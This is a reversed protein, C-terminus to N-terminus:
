VQEKRTARWKDLVARAPKLETTDFCGEGHLVCTTYELLEELAEALESTMDNPDGSHDPKGHIRDYASWAAAIALERLPEHGFNGYRTSEGDL